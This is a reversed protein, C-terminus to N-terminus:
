LSEAVAVPRAPVVLEEKVIVAPEAAWSPKVVCGLLVVASAAMVGATCTVARSARPFVTGPKLPATATVMPVFGAPPGRSPGADRAATAPSGVKEASLM